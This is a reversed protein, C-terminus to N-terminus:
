RRALGFGLAIWGAMYCLGGVPTVAGWIRSGSLALTYLSGGFFVQGATFLWGAARLSATSARELALSVMVLALAHFIQYRAGTEFAQLFEPAIGGRLAHTAFAGAAVGMLGTVAGVAGFLAPTGAGGSQRM